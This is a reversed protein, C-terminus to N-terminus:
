ARGSDKQLVVAISPTLLGPPLGIASLTATLATRLPSSPRGAIRSKATMYRVGREEADVNAYRGFGFRLQWPWLGRQVPRGWIWPDVFRPLYNVLWTRYHVERPWLRNSTGSVFILGGPKLVRDIEQQVQALHAPNVYELVSITTVVDFSATDFPLTRTDPIHHVQVRDGMGYRATNLRALRVYNADVDLTTVQAGLAALVTATGGINSGFELVRKGALEYQEFVHRGHSWEYDVYGGIWPDNFDFKLDKLAERFRQDAEADAIELTSVTEAM